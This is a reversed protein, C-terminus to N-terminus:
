AKPRGFWASCFVCVIQVGLAAGFLGGAAAILYVFPEMPRALWSSAFDACLALMPLPAVVAKFRAPVGTLLFLGTVIVVFVPISLM